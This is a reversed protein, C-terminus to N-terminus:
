LKWIKAPLGSQTIISKLTRAKLPIKGHKPISLHSM